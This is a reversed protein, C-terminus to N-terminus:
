KKIVCAEECTQKFGWRNENGKCGSFKFSECINKDKNYYYRGLSMRCPGIELPQLCKADQKKQPQQPTQQKPKATTTSGRTTSTAPTAQVLTKPKPTTLAETLQALCLLLIAAHWMIRLHTLQKM